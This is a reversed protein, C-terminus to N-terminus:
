NPSQRSYGKNMFGQSCGKMIEKPYKGLLPIVANFPMHVTSPEESM